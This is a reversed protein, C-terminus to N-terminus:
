DEVNKQTKFSSKSNPVMYGCNMCMDKIEEAGSILNVMNQAQITQFYHENKEFEKKCKPCMFTKNIFFWRM